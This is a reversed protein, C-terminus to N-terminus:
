SWFDYFNFWNRPEIRVYHELRGAFRQAHEALAEARRGRPLDLREAFPECHLDYLNDGRYLGFVIYVPCALLSVLIFPGAPLETRAGLFDVPVTKDNLGTRDAMIAVLEGAEVREKLRLIFTANGPEVNLVRATLGPNLDQLFANIMPANDFYGVINLQLDVRHSAARMVEFSGLHAGFLMAGRGDRALGELHEYGTETVEFHHIFGRVLFVRDLTCQAFHLIHAYLERWSPRRGTLRLWFERSAHRARRGLLVYYFAVMRVIARAAPRGFATCVRFLSRLWFVSGVEHVELWNKGM